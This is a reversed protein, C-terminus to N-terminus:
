ELIRVKNLLDEFLAKLFRKDENNDMCESDACIEDKDFYITYEGWGNNGSWQIVVGKTKENNFAVLEDVQVKNVKDSKRSEWEVMNSGGLYDQM